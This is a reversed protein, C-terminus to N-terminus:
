LNQWMSNDYSFFIGLIKLPKITNGLGINLSAADEGLHLAELKSENVKLGSCSGFDQLLNTLNEFSRKNKLFSTMDDAFLTLKIERGNKLKIGEIGSSSRINIALTELAIIFLYPSLPDGQRLGRHVDFLTSSFGNNM